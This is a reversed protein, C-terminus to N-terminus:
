PLLDPLAGHDTLTGQGIVQLRRQYRKMTVAAAGLYSKDMWIWPGPKGKNDLWRAIVLGHGALYSAVAGQAAEEAGLLEAAFSDLDERTYMYDRASALLSQLTSM